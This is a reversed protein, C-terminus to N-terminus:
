PIESGMYIGEVPGGEPHVAMEGSQSRVPVVPFKRDQVPADGIHAAAVDLVLIEEVPM